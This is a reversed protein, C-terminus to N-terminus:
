CQSLTKLFDGVSVGLIKCINRIVGPSIEKHRPVTIAEAVGNKVFVTHRGGEREFSWGYAKTIAKIIKDRSQPTINPM